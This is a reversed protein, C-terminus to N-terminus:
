PSPVRAGARGCASRCRRRQGLPNRGCGPRPASPCREATPTSSTARGGTATELADVEAEVKAELAHRLRVLMVRRKEQMGSGLVSSAASGRRAATGGGEPREVNGAAKVPHLFQTEGINGFLSIIMSKDKKDHGVNEISDFM